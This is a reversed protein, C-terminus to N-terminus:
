RFNVTDFLFPFIVGARRPLAQVEPGFRLPLARQAAGQGLNHPDNPDVPWTARIAAHAGGAHALPAM